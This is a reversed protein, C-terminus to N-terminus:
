RGARAILDLGFWIAVFGGLGAGLGALNAPYRLEAMLWGALGCAGMGLWFLLRGRARIRRRTEAERRMAYRYVAALTDDHESAM